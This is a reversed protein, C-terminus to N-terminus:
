TKATTLYSPQLFEDENFSVNTETPSCEEFVVPAITNYHLQNAQLVSDKTIGYRKYITSMITESEQLKPPIFSYSTAGNDFAFNQAAQFLNSYISSDKFRSSIFSLASILAIKSKNIAVRCEGLKEQTFFDLASIRAGVSFKTTEPMIVKTGKIIYVTSDSSNETPYAAPFSYNQQNNGLNTGYDHLVYKEPQVNGVDIDFIVGQKEINKIRLGMNSCEYYGYKTYFNPVIKEYGKDPCCLLVSLSADLKKLAYNEAFSLLTKGVGCGDFKHNLIELQNVSIWPSKDDKKTVYCKAIVEDTRYDRAYFWYHYREGNNYAEVLRSQIYYPTAPSFSTNFGSRKKAYFLTKDSM